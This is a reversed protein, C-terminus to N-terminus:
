AARIGRTRAASLLDPSLGTLDSGPSARQISSVLAILLHRAGLDHKAALSTLLRWLANIAELYAPSPAAPGAQRLLDLVTAPDLTDVDDPLRLLLQERLQPNDGLADFGHRYLAARHDPATTRGYDLQALLLGPLTWRDDSTRWRLADATSQLLPVSQILLLGVRWNPLYALERILHGSTIAPPVALDLALTDPDSVLIDYDSRRQPASPALATLVDRLTAPSGTERGLLITLRDGDRSVRARMVDVLGDWEAKAFQGHWLSAHRRWSEVADPGFLESADIEGDALLVSLLTLNASYAALRQPVPLRVPEYDGFSRSHPPYLSGALLQALLDRIHARERDPTCRLLEALFDVTPRREALCSFSLTAYLFGDDLYERSGTVGRRLVERVAALERLARVTLWAVLFEGFTAHLFEYSHAIQGHRSAESTHLFFFRGIARQAASLATDSQDPGQDEDRFLIPLDHDLEAASVSQRRRASMALAVIALRQLEREALQQQRATSLSQNRPLKRVERLAFDMLLAEYLESRGLAASERQLVNSTADFLALMTLLLPQEALEAHALATEAPLPRLGRRALVDANYRRWVELWQRVQEHGFPELRVALTGIPFRARDAVLTRSTVIVAVPHGIRAQTRQFDRVQELYDYRNVGSAQLLEDFGDLLVVPLAGGAAEVLDPWSIREGPGRYVAHEIQEQIMSEAPVARLEVRVPLFDTDALRAALVETLKSKGSGPEGLVVLPAQSARPSTLYGALVTEVDSVVTQGQWWAHDAPADGPDVEAVRCGPNVYADRLPPLVVGEPAQASSIVPEDLIAQNAKLLHARTRNGPRQATRLLDAVQALGAGLAQTESLAAWIAFEHNDVALRRYSEDYLKLARRLTAPSTLADLTRRRARDDLEDWVALGRVFLGLREALRAHVRGVDQRTESYPRHCEPLPLRDTILVEILEVFGQPLRQATAQAAQESRTLAFRDLEVPLEAQELADFYASIVLVAHAAALRQTRDFRSLGSRWEAARNALGHGFRVVDNKLEFLNLPVGSDAGTAWAAGAWAMLGMSAAADLAAVLRSRRHGLIRLADAYTLSEGM